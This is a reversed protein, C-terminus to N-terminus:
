ELSNYVLFADSINFQETDHNGKAGVTVLIYEEDNKRALSALCLGAEGTYGTKGGLIVGGNFEPSDLNKYLTSNFTIGGPHLKTSQTSHKTSTFIERFTDNQLAYELLLALDKVTTYHEPDSLGTSNTFHTHKMNLAEAKENMLEVFSAESGAIYDSLGLCCEAGSPLIVGYLLDIAPVSEEPLFGAMSANEDYLKQFLDSPLLIPENLDKMNEIAVIATMIKTLSAPYITKESDKEFVIKQDELSILIANNSSLQTEKLDIVSLKSGQETKKDNEKTSAEIYSFPETADKDLAEEEVIVEEHVPESTPPLKNNNSQESRLLKFLSTCSIILLLILSLQLLIAIFLKKVSKRKRKKM